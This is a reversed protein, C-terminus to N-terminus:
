VVSKRDRKAEIILGDAFDRPIKHIRSIREALFSPVEFADVDSLSPTTM